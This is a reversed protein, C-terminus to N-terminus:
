RGWLSAPFDLRMVHHGEPVAEDLAPGCREEQARRQAHALAVALAEAGSAPDHVVTQAHCGGTSDVRIAPVLAAMAEDALADLAEGPMTVRSASIRGKYLFLGRYFLYARSEVEALNWALVVRFKRGPLTAWGAHGAAPAAEPAAVPATAGAPAAGPDRGPPAPDPPPRPIPFDVPADFDARAYNGSTVGAEIDGRMGAIGRDLETAADVRGAPYVFLDVRVDPHDAHEYRLGVGADPRGEFGRAQVLRWAGVQHPALVRSAAIFPREGPDGPPPAGGAPLDGATATAAALLTALWPSRRSRSAAM